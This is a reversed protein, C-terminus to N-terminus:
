ERRRRRLCLIAITAAFPWGTHSRGVTRCGCGEPGTAAGGGGSTDLSRFSWEDSFDSQNEGDDLSAVSWSYERDNPYESYDLTPDLQAPHETCTSGVECVKVIYRVRGDEPDTSRNWVLTAQSQPVEAGDIPAVLTPVSPAEDLASVFFGRSVIESQALGDTCWVELVYHENEELRVTSEWQGNSEADVLVPEGTVLAEGTPMQFDLPDAYRVQFVYFLEASDLDRGGTARFTPTVSDVILREEPYVISPAEPAGNEVNVTFAWRESPESSDGSEDIAVVEWTYAANEILEQNPVFRVFGDPQIDGDGNIEAGGRSNYIHFLYRLQDGDPDTVTECEFIPRKVAVVSDDAPARLLPTGPPFNEMNITFAWAETWPSFAPGLYARVRWYYTQDEILIGAPPIWIVDDEDGRVVAESVLVRDSLEQDDYIEFVYTASAVPNENNPEPDVTLEPQGSEVRVGDEPLALEPLPPGDYTGPDTGETFEDLNTRGDMDPDASADTPDDPSPCVRGEACIRNEWTDPLGDVDADIPLVTVVLDTEDRGNDGDRVTLQIRIPSQEFQEYTPVWQILGSEVDLGVGVPPDVLAFVLHDQAGAPDFVPVVYNFPDGERATPQAVIEEFRPAVNNVVVDEHAETRGGDEDEAILTIVLPPRDDATLIERVLDPEGEVDVIGDGDLDWSLTVTDDGPDTVTATVTVLQGEDVPGNNQMTVIPAVNEVIVQISVPTVSSGDDVYCTLIKLGQDPWAFDAEGVELGEIDIIGDSDFDFAYSEVDTAPNVPAARVRTLTGEYVPGDVEVDVVAPVNRVNITANVITADGAEDFVRVSIVVAGEEELVLEQRNQGIGVLDYVGDGNVDWDYRLIDNGPDTAVVEVSFRQGEDVFMPAIIEASPPANLVEVVTSSVARGGDEERVRVGVLYRGQQRYIPSLTSELQDVIDDNFDGDNDLDFSYVLTDTGPDTANVVINAPSGEFVPSNNTIRVITPDANHIPVPEERLTEALQDDTLRIRLTYNGNDPYTVVIADMELGELEYVGDGDVDYGYTIPDDGPDDAIIQIAVERGELGPLGAAMALYDPAENQVVVPFVLIHEGGDDDRVRVRASFVGDDPYIHTTRLQLVGPDEFLGDGDWDFDFTLPDLGPEVVRLEVTLMGGESIPSDTTVTEIQPAVNRVVIRASDVDSKGEPDTVRVRLQYVGDDPFSRIVNPGNDDDFEGDDDLDWVYTLAAADEPDASRAASLQVPEGESANYPGGADAVPSPNDPHIDFNVIVAREQNTLGFLIDTPIASLSQVESITDVRGTERVLVSMFAVTGNGGIAVQRFEWGFSNPVAADPFSLGLRAPLYRSGSGFVLSALTSVGGNPADDDVLIWRDTLEAESDDDHTRWVGLNAGYALGGGGGPSGIRVAVVVPAAGLNTIIDLYRIFANASLPANGPPVYVKRIVQLGGVNDPAMVLQLNALERVAAVGGADYVENAACPGDCDVCARVCLNPWGGFPAPGSLQGGQTDEVVFQLGNAGDLTVRAQAASGVGLVLSVLALRILNILESRRLSM